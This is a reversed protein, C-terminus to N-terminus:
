NNEWEDCVAQMAEPMNELDCSCADQMEREFAETDDVEKKLEYYRDDAAQYRSTLDKWWDYSEQDILYIGEEDDYEPLEGHNGMLDNIWNVGYKPDIIELTELEGTEKIKIEM